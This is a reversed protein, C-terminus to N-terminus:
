CLATGEGVTYIKNKQKNQKKSDKNYKSVQKPLMLMHKRMGIINLQTLLILENVRTCISNYLVTHLSM